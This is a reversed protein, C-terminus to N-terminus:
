LVDVETPKLWHLSGDSAVRVQLQGDRIDVVTGYMMERDGLDARVDDWLEFDAVSQGARRRALVRRRLYSRVSMCNITVYLDTRGPWLRAMVGPRVPDSGAVQSWWAALL